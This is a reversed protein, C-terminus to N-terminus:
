KGSKKQCIDRDVSSSGIALDIPVESPGVVVGDGDPVAVGVTADVVGDVGAVVAVDVAVVAGGVPVFVGVDRACEGEAGDSSDDACACLVSIAM